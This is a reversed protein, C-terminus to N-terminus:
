QGTPLEMIVCNSDSILSQKNQGTEHVRYGVTHQPVFGTALQCFRDTQLLFLATNMCWIGSAHGEPRSCDPKVERWGICGCRVMRQVWM